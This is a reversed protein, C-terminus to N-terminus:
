EKSKIHGLNKTQFFLLSSVNLLHVGNLSLNVEDVNVQTVLYLHFM